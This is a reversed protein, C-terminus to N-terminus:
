VNGAVNPKFTCYFNQLERIGFDLDYAPKWGTSELKENSVLYDRKDPDEGIEAKIINLSPFYNKIKKCLEYKTLNATSLGLNFINGGMKDKHKIGHIFANCVDRVHIFNRRFHSQFLVISNDKYARWVFDNVMLDLRMRYSSGFVTALRFAIGNKEIVCNEARVKTDGYISIPNLPSEETCFQFEDKMVGYGSNTNPYILLQDKRVIDAINKVAQYNILEAMTAHRSCIPAGVLAALPIIIDAKEVLSKIGAFDVVDARSCSFEPHQAAYALSSNNEMFTDVVHVKFGKLLLMETLVSGIYGAGGTILVQNM